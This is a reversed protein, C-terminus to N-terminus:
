CSLRTESNCYMTCLARPWAPKAPMAVSQMASAATHAVSTRLPRKWPWSTAPMLPQESSPSASNMLGPATGRVMGEGCHHCSCRAGNSANLGARM